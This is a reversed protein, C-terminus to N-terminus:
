LARSRLGKTREPYIDSREEAEHDQVQENGVENEKEM